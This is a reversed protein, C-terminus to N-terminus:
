AFRHVFWGIFLGFAYAVPMGVYLMPKSLALGVEPSILKRVVLKWYVLLCIHLGFVVGLFIALGRKEWTAIEYFSVTVGGVAVFPLLCLKLLVKQIKPRAIREVLNQNVPLQM